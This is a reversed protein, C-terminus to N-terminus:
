CYWFRKRKFDIITPGDSCGGIEVAEKDKKEHGIIWQGSKTHKMIIGEALIHGKAATLNGKGDYFVKISDGTIVVICREGLSKGAWEDFAIEYTYTGSQPIQGVAVSSAALLTLLVVTGLFTPRWNM